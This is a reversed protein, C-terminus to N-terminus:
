QREKNQNRMLSWYLVLALALVKEAGCLSETQHSDSMAAWEFSAQPGELSFGVPQPNIHRYLTTMGSVSDLSIGSRRRSAVWGSPGAM